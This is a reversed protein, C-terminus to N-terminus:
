DKHNVNREKSKSHIMYLFLITLPFVLLILGPMAFILSPKLANKKDQNMAQLDEESESSARNLSALHHRVVEPHVVEPHVVQEMTDEEEKYQAAMDKIIDEIALKSYLQIYIMKEIHDNWLELNWLELDDDNWVKPGHGDDDGKANANADKADDDHGGGGGDDQSGLVQSHRTQITKSLRETEEDYYYDKADESLWPAQLDVVQSRRTEISKALRKYRKVDHRTWEHEYKPIIKYFLVDPAPGAIETAGALTTLLAVATACWLLVPATM